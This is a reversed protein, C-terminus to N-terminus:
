DTKWVLKDQIAAAVNSPVDDAPVIVDAAARYIHSRERYLREMALERDRGALLPRTQDGDLRLRIAHLSADLFVIIGNEKFASANEPSTLTGGGAAIVLGSKQGLTNAAQRELRRFAPEGQRKFIETVTMGECQEIWKDLEIFQRNM